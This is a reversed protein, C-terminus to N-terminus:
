RRSSDLRACRINLEVDGLGDTLGFHAILKAAPGSPDLPTLTRRAWVATVGHVVEKLEVRFKLVIAVLCASTSAAAIESPWNAPVLTPSQM